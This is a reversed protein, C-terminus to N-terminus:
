RRPFADQDDPVGGNDSDFCSTDSGDCGQDIGDSCIENARPNIDPNTDDCDGRSETHGERNHDIDNEGNSENEGYDSLQFTIPDGPLLQLDLWFSVGLDLCPIHLTNASMNFSACDGRTAAETQNEDFGKPQFTIQDGPIMQLNLWYSVGMDLCSIHLTNTFLNFSACAEVNPEPQPQPGGPNGAPDVEKGFWLAAYGQYIGIGLAKWTINSWINQNLIVANHGSSNKWATIAEDATAIHGGFGGFVNEYGNGLYDTLERPKDWM